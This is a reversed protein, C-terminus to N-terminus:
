LNPRILYQSLKQLDQISVNVMHGTKWEVLCWRCPSDDYNFLDHYERHVHVLVLDGLVEAQASFSTHFTYDFLRMSITLVPTAALPHYDGTFFDLLQLIIAPEGHM